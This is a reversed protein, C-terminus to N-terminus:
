ISPINVANVLLANQSPNQFRLPVMPLFKFLQAGRSFNCGEPPGYSIVRYNFTGAVTVFACKNRDTEELFVQHYGSHADLFSLLSHGVTSDVLQDIRPLLNCDKPCAKNLNTFEVCMRWGGTAKKVMVVNALWEPYLCPEIIGAKLLKEVEAAAAEEKDASTNRKKQKVPKYAPDVNLRHKIVHPDM